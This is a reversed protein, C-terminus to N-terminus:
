HTACRSDVLRPLPASNDQRLCRTSPAFTHAVCPPRGRLDLVLSADPQLHSHVHEDAYQAVDPLAQKALTTRDSTCGPLGASGVDVIRDGRLVGFSQTGGAEFSVLQM